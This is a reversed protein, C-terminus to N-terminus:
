QAAIQPEERVLLVTCIDHRRALKYLNLLDRFPVTEQLLETTRGSNGVVDTLEDCASVSTMSLEVGVRPCRGWTGM